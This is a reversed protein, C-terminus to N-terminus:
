LTADPGLIAPWLASNRRAFAALHGVKGLGFRAPELVEHTQVAEPYLQGLRAVVWPPIMVDDAPVVSRLPAVLAQADHAPLSADARHFGRTTCWRKWQRFVPGPVDVGLTSLRGPLYGTTAVLTPGLVYWFVRAMAQYPWPHDSVHIPGSSVAIVRAIRALDSQYGLMFGGLSHGIVWLPLGEAEATLWDRAAQQDHIGWDAMTLRVKGVPGQASEGFGRYDYTLCSVGQEAALWAAFHRYFAQPAGTAPNLVAVARPAPARFLRGAMRGGQSEITIQESMVGALRRSSM